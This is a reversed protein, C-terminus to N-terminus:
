KFCFEAIVLLARMLELTMSFSREKIEIIIISFIKKFTLNKNFLFFSLM